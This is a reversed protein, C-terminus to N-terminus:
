TLCNPPAVVFLPERDAPSQCHADSVRQRAKASKQATFQVIAETHRCTMEAEEIGQFAKSM